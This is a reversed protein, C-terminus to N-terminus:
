RTANNTDPQVLQIRENEVSPRPLVMKRIFGIQYCSQLVAIQFKGKSEFREGVEEPSMLVRVDDDEESMDFHEKLDEYAEQITPFIMYPMTSFADDEQRIVWTYFTTSM